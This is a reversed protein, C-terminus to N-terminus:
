LDTRGALTWRAEAGGVGTQDIWTTGPTPGCHGAIVDVVYTDLSGEMAAGSPGFFYNVVDQSMDGVRGRKWNLGWRPDTRRLRRVVEFLFDNNGGTDRCSNRLWDPHERAVAELTPRGDPLPPRTTTPPVDVPPTGADPPPAGDYGMLTWVGGESSRDIWGPAAPEDIGARSCHRLIVDFMYVERRGEPCGDGYFYTVIDGSLSGTRRDLGWRPDLARGRRLAEFLFRYSGGMSICSDRLWDPREAALARIAESGDPGPAPPRAAPPPLACGTDPAGADVVPPLDIVFPVDPVVRVDVRPADPASPADFGPADRPPAPRDLPPSPADRAAPADPAGGSDVVTVEDGWEPACASALAMSALVWSRRTRIRGM